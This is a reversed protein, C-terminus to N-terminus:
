LAESAGDMDTFPDASDYPDIDIGYNQELTNLYIRYYNEFSGYERITFVVSFIMIVASIFLAIIGVYLAYKAPREFKLRSGRSLLAFIIALTGFLIAGIVTFVSLIAIIACAIAAMAMSSAPKRPPRTFQDVPDGFRNENPDFM